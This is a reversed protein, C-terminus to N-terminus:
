PSRSRKTPKRPSLAQPTLVLSPILAPLKAPTISPTLRPTLQVRPAHGEEHALHGFRPCGASALQSGGGIWVCAGEPVYSGRGVVDLLAAPQCFVVPPGVNAVVKSAVLSLLAAEKLPPEDMIPPPV